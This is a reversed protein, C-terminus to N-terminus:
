HLGAGAGCQGAQEMADPRRCPPIPVILPVVDERHPADTVPRHPFPPNALSREHPDLTFIHFYLRVPGSRGSNSNGGVFWWCGGVTRFLSSSSTGRGRWWCGGTTRFFSKRVLAPPECHGEGAWDYVGASAPSGKGEPVFAALRNLAPGDPAPSMSLGTVGKITVKRYAAPPPPLLSADEAPPRPSDVISGYPALPVRM